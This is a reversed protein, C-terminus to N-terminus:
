RNSDAELSEMPAPSFKGLVAARSAGTVPAGGPPLAIGLVHAAALLGFILAERADPDVGRAASSRVELGTSSSIAALLAANHVGGGAVEIKAPRAGGSHALGAAVSRGVLAAATALLDAPVLEPAVGLLAECWAEGFVERGTSKPPAEACFRALSMGGVEVDFWVDCLALDVRGSAAVAGGADFEKGLVRRALHDMLAGAPGTDFSAVLRGREFLSVNGFGGLNLVCLDEDARAGFLWPDVLAGIPAGSGGLALDRMRFDSVVAAGAAEAVFDGDGLQLSALPAGGDHHWVTQGHSGVLGLRVGCRAAVDRAAAGFAAGLDVDLRAVDGLALRAGRADAAEDLVARLRRRLGAAFPVTEFAVVGLDVPWLAGGVVEFRPRFVVVDIGDASTGSLVGCVARGGGSLGFEQWRTEDVVLRLM